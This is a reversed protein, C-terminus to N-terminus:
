RHCERRLRFGNQNVRAWLILQEAIYRDIGRIDRPSRCEVRCAGSREYEDAMRVILERALDIEHRKDIGAAHSQGFVAIRPRCVRDQLVTADVQAADGVVVLTRRGANCQHRKRRVLALPEDGHNTM